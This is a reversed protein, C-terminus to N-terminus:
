YIDSDAFAALKTKKKIKETDNLVPINEPLEM